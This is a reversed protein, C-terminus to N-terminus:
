GGEIIRDFQLGSAPAVAGVQKSRAMWLHTSGDPARALRYRRELKIGERAFEEEFIPAASALLRGLPVIPGATGDERLLAARQMRREFDTSQVPVFPIYAQPVRTGLQYRLGIPSPVPAEGIPVTSREIASGTAIQVVREIGWALNAAEDRVLLVQEIPASSNHRAIGAPMLLRHAAPEGSVAFMRWRGGDPTAAYHPVIQVVGFTDSVSLSIIQSVTGALVPVPVLFWDAGYILAFECLMLRGLDAPGADIAGIDVSGDELEWFRRAPAGKFRVPTPLFARTVPEVPPDVPGLPASVHDFATWSLTDGAYQGAVYAGPTDTATADLAFSYEVRADVWASSTAFGVPESFLTDFWTLFAGAVTAVTGADPGPIAPAVPLGPAAARLAAALALGDPVRGALLRAMDGVASDRQDLDAEDVTLAFAARYGDSYRQLGASRLMRLFQLGAEAAQRYDEAAVTPRAAEREVWAELPLSNPVLEAAGAPGAVRDLVTDRSTVTALIPSGADDAAFEGLQWQRALFWFPDHTRAQLAETMDAARCRPELRTWITLSAM